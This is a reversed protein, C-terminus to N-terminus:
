TGNQALMFKNNIYVNACGTFEISAGDFTKLNDIYIDSQSFTVTAGQKVTVKGYVSGNLTVSTNTNITQNPSSNNSLNNTVFNPFPINAPQYIPNFITSGQNLTINAARGFEAVTTAQHLKILGNADTAGIGGSQVVNSGHLFVEEEALITYASLLTSEDFPAVTYTASATCNTASTVEVTFTGGQPGVEISETTEGNSWLYSAANTTDTTLVLVAGQCFEPLEEPANITVTPIDGLVTVLAECTSINGNNDTVTLEVTVPSGVDACTFATIDLTRSAIGCADNSGNDIDTITISAEGNADLQVTAPKCLATPPVNDEVTVTTTCTSVNDNNDTVTLEVTVPSGVDACTFDTIDLTLSQIGCADNSGNDIDDTTISTNGSADLQVTLTQVCIAEPAVNDEVTISATCYALNGYTDEVTLTVTINEGIDACSFATRDLELSKINSCEDYSGNDVEAATLIGNGSADLQVTVAQCLAIPPIDDNVIVNAICTSTNGSTDTVLVEVNNVNTTINITHSGLNGIISNDFQTWGDAGNSNSLNGANVDPNRILTTGNLSVGSSYVPLIDIIAGSNNNKLAIADNGDFDLEPTNNAVVGSFTSSPHAIIAPIGDAVIGGLFYEDIVGSDNTVILSYDSLDITVGTGNYLEIANDFGPGDIYESIILDDLDGNVDDCSFTDQSLTIDYVECNDGVFDYLQDPTISLSGINSLFVNLTDGCEIVPNINDEVTVTASCNSINGNVDTVTVTVTNAGGLNSCDFDTQSASVSAIGCADTPFTNVRMNSVLVSGLDAEDNSDAGPGQVTFGYQIRFADPHVNYQVSFDSNAELPDNIEEIFDGSSDFTRIFAFANHASTLTNELTSGSFRLPTDTTNDSEIYTSGQIDLNSANQSQFNPQLRLENPGDFASTINALVDGYGGTYNGNEFIGVFGLWPDSSTLDSGNIIDYADISAMGNDDLQVTIDLCSIVPAEKDEVIVDFSCTATNGIGAAWALSNAMILDGDTNADWLDPRSDSSPAFFNLSVTKGNTPEKYAILPDGTSWNALLSAGPQLLLNIARFSSSGGNFNTVGQMIPHSGNIINMTHPGGTAFDAPNADLPMYGGTRFNGELDFIDQGVTTPSWQTFMNVVVGGGADVYAALVNGLAVTDFFPEDNWVLVADYEQLTALTPTQIEVDIDDVSKFVGTANLKTIVEDEWRPNSDSASLVAVRPQSGGNDTVTWTVTTTGLDFVAGDLTTSNNYDNEITAGPCNDVINTPDFEGGQVEYACTNPDTDKTQDDVCTFTPDENDEVIVNFMCSTSGVANTATATVITIGVPFVTNPDQSYTITSAPIGITDTAEFDVVASCLGPDTNQTIDVPCAIVPAIGTVTVTFSCEQTNSSADIVQYTVTTIGIPFTSGNTLGATPSSTIVVNDISCNDTPTPPTWSVTVGNTSTAILSINEPCDVVPLETDNVTVTYSCSAPNGGADVVDVTVTTTGVPFEVNQYGPVIIVKGTPDSVYLKGDPGFTLGDASNLSINGTTVDEIFAGTTGDYSLVQGPNLNSVYLNGDPGFELDEPQFLGGSATPVFADIFVGTAGNYRLVSSTLISTVYLNGDPGFDLGVPFSLGGSSTTVFDGMFAGTLGNYKRVSNDIISSVYLNGDPGFVLGSPRWYNGLGLPNPVFADILAGTNPNFRLIEGSFNSAVYLNGDPGFDLGRPFALSTSGCPGGIELLLNGTTGDFKKITGYYLNDYPDPANACDFNSVYVNGEPGIIVQRPQNLDETFIYDTTTIGDVTVSYQSLNCSETILEGGLTVTASCAGPTTNVVINEPCTIVPASNDEVTVTFTCSDTGVDNTATATVTTTGLPFITNPDQSYTITSTPNGVSDTAEFDVVASCLGSDTNQTIDGPCTIVPTISPDFCFKFNDVAVYQFSGGIEIEIEDIDTMSHDVGGETAFDWLYFGQNSGIVTTFGSSKTVTYLTTGDLKGRITVTGDNTPFTGNLLSSVYIEMSGMKVMQTNTIAITNIDNIGQSTLNDIYHDSGGAGADIFEDASFSAAGSSWPITNTTWSFTGDLLGEFTEVNCISAIFREGDLFPDPPTNGSLDEIDTGANLDLRLSGEGSISNVSVTYTTGSGSLGSITGTASGLATLSFDNSTVNVADENFVVEFNVSSSSAPPNGILNINQVIPPSGATVEECHEFNDLGVYQFAGGISIQLEDINTLSYDAAGETAFDVVYFGNNVNFDIPFGTTKQITYLTSGSLKGELTLTGDNTPNTGNLISSLYFDIADVTFIETGPTTINYVKGTGQDANNSLFQDSDGAGGNNFFEVNFNATGTTFTVGNSSFSFDNASFGEFTEQFCRSVIHDEGSTFAAVPGNGLADEINNGNILDISITGEGLIASVTLTYATGSGSIGSITGSTGTNDVIFDSADVMFADENFTVLFDVSTATSNPTGLVAISQVEPPDTNLVQNDFEFNDLSFYQFAGNLTIELEDINMSSVDGVGPLGTFDVLFFGNDAGILSTPYTGAAKTYTFVQTGSVLGRITVTGDNTPNNGTAISSTYMEMSEMTFLTAGGTISISYTSNIAPASLNDLFRDSDGAGANAFEASTFNSSSTSFTLGANTWSTSGLPLPAEFTETGQANTHISFLFLFAFTFQFYFRKM